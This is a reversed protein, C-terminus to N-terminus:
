PKRTRKMDTPGPGLSDLGQKEYADDLALLSDKLVNNLYLDFGMGRENLDDKTHYWEKMSNLDKPVQDKPPIPIGIKCKTIKLGDNQDGKGGVRNPM